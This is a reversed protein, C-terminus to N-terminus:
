LKFFSFLFDFLAPVSFFFSFKQLRFINVGKGNLFSMKTEPNNAIHALLNVALGARNYMQARLSPIIANNAPGLYPYISVLEQLLVAVTGFSHWLISALDPFTKFQTVLKSLAAERQESTQMQRLCAYIEKAAEANAGGIAPASM